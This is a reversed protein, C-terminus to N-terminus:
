LVGTMNDVVREVQYFYPAIETYEDKGDRIWRERENSHLGEREKNVIHKLCFYLSIHARGAFLVAGLFVRLGTVHIGNVLDKSIQGVENICILM